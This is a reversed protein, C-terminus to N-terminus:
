SGTESCKEFVTRDVFIQKKNLTAISISDVVRSELESMKQENSFVLKSHLVGNEEVRYIVIYELNQNTIDSFNKFLQNSTPLSTENNELILALQAAEEHGITVPMVIDRNNKDALVIDYNKTFSKSFFKSFLTKHRSNSLGLLVLEILKENTTMRYKKTKVSKEYIAALKSIGAIFMRNNGIYHISASHKYRM